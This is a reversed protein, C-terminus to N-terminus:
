FACSATPAAANNITRAPTWRINGSVVRQTGAHNSQKDYQEAPGANAPCQQPHVLGPRGIGQGDAVIAEKLLLGIILVYLDRPVRHLHDPLCGAALDYRRLVPCFEDDNGPDEIVQILDLVRVSM